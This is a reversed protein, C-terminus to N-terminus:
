LDEPALLTLESSSPPWALYGSEGSIETGELVPMQLLIDSPM